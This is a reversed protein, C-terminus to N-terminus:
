ASGDAGRSKGSYEGLLKRAHELSVDSGAGGSLMRSIEAVRREGSVARASTVTGGDAQTKEIVIQNDAQCAIGALHTICLIQRGRSLRHIHAGVALAVEGGIGSDIEDFVLTDTADADALVTKLALMVRSIEGGSAIKALPRLPEGANASILFEVDDFGYPSATKGAGGASEKPNLSVAFKTGRMGVNKLIEEVEKEMRGAAAARKESLASGAALLARELSSIEGDISIRNEDWKSLDDLEKSAAEAYGRVDRLTAGYKKKLKYLLSLREEVAELRSPDFVASNLYNGVSSDIDEIEYFAGELRPVDQSFSPDIAAAGELLTKARKILSLAGSSESSSGSGLLAACQELATCLKEHQSLRKAEAELIEDENEEIKADAIEKVAFSLLEMREERDQRSANMEERRRRATVLHSYLQSFSDVEGTIGAYLDLFRRHEPVKLLSQHDHQGHIDVLFSTFEALENRAVPIGQIWCSSRGGARANRKLFVRGSDPTMGRSALWAEADGGEPVRVTGAVWAEDAGSRVVDSATKGGLLFSISGILISKGAGTEGTFVTFGKEFNLSLSDILAFDKISIDEIMDRGKEMMGRRVRRETGGM